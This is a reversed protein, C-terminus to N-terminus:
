NKERKRENKEKEEPTFEEWSQKNEEIDRHNNAYNKYWVIINCISLTLSYLMYNNHVNKQEDTDKKSHSETNTIDLINKLQDSITKPFHEKEKTCRVECISADKGSLFKWSDTLNVKGNPLCNDHLLGLKNALRFIFEVVKRLQNFYIDKILHKKPYHLSLLIDTIYEAYEAGNSEEKFVEFVDAYMQRIQTIPFRDASKKINEFLEEREDPKSYYLRDDWEREYIVYKLSDVGDYTGGTYVFWPIDYKDIAHISEKLSHLSPTEDKDNSIKCNADFIIADWKGPDSKLANFGDTHNEKTTIHINYEYAEKVFEDSPNDDIWLVTYMDEKM